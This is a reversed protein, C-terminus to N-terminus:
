PNMLDVNVFGNIEQMLEVSALSKRKIEESADPAQAAARYFNIADGFRCNRRLEEAKELLERASDASMVIIKNNMLLNKAESLIVDQCSM